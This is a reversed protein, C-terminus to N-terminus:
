EAAVSNPFQCQKHRTGPGGATWGVRARVTTAAPGTVSWPFTGNASGSNPVNQAIPIWTLGGDRSIDINVSELTGLNHTWTINHLSGIAWSVNTNPATVTVTPPTTTFPTNCIDADSPDGTHSVRILAQGTVVAPLRGTFTGTTATLNAVGSAVPIWSLGGDPSFDIGVTEGSGLNHTWTITRTTGAGWIVSTNPTTVTIGPTITFDVDSIGSVSTNAVWTARFRAHTTPPGSVAWAYSGSAASTTTVHAIPSWTLGSDRSLDVAIVQGSGLNHTFTVSHVAAIKWSVPTIPASVAISPAVIIFPANSVDTATGALWSVRVLATTTPPGQITWPFAGTTATSNKVSAALTTWSGGGDPSLEIRVYANVGLNHTWTISQQTGITWAVTRNPATVTITGSGNVITFTADSTDIASAGSAGRATVRIRANPTPQPPSWVCSTVVAPLGLCATINLYSTGGDTSIAVDFSSAGGASVWRIAYPSGVFLREGGNPTTLTVALGDAGDPSKSIPGVWSSPGAANVARVYWHYSTGANLGTFSAATVNAGVARVVALSDDQAIEFGTENSSLDSWALDIQGTALSRASLNSPMAPPGDSGDPLKGIPGVWSSAGAANVARVYWQYSTAADLGTFSAATVNAGVVRVIALSDDQAIEFGTENASLDIWALDIHGTALSTATLNSPMAPPGDSGDPRKGIPGVWSSTGAANMSRVYWHYSTGPNLGLFSTATTNTGVTRVVTLSDDQAIEFGSENTSADEWALDVRGLAPSAATLDAPANPPGDSGDPVRGIPGVWSSPGAANVARVYWQYSLGANLGTFSAVTVNASVAQVVALSDGQAIEFSTENSSLNTWALDIEGSVPSSAVLAAPAAPPGDSGDPIKGIPGVWASAGAGNVARVYWHYSTGANLGILSAITMNAGVSSVVSLSDDQAIEFGTENTATDTWTVDVEGLAPSSAVLNTPATPPPGTPTQEM